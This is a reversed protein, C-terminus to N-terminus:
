GCGNVVPLRAVLLEGDPSHQRYFPASTLETVDRLDRGYDRSVSHCVHASPIGSGGCVARLAGECWFSMSM